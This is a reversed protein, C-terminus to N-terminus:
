VILLFMRPSIRPLFRFLIVLNNSRDARDRRLQQEGVSSDVGDQLHLCYIRGFRV